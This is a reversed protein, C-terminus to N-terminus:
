INGTSLGVETLSVERIGMGKNWEWEIALKAMAADLSATATESGDMWAGACGVGDGGRVFGGVVGGAGGVRLVGGVALHLNFLQESPKEM